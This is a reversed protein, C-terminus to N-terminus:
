RYIDSIEWRCTGWEGVDTSTDNKGGALAGTRGCTLGLLLIRGGSLAVTERV